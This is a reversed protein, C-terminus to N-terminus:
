EVKLELLSYQGDADQFVRKLGPMLPSEEVRLRGPRNITLAVLRAAEALDRETMVRGRPSGSIGPHGGALMRLVGGRAAIEAKAELVSTGEWVVVTNFDLVREVVCDRWLAQVIERASVCNAPPPNEFSVTIAGTKTNLAVVAKGM